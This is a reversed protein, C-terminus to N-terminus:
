IVGAQRLSAIQEDDYALIEKLIQGTDAGLAPGPQNHEVSDPITIATRVQRVTGFEPHEVATIMHRALVQEDALAEEVTNVPACPVKGRLRDLWESTTRTLFRTKLDALLSDRHEYRTAFSAYRPDAALEPAELVETLALWFKEKAAFIVLYGDQTQFAQAPTLTPHASDPLRRPQYDSNLTWIAVYNLLSIATDLLSVDVDCGQGTLRAHLLGALLGTMAIAGGAYDVVSLGSKTPPGDPDGTLSMWGAYAQMLYDYAPEAHRPGTLGFGSLSCCVIRPNVARLQEYTLGLKHPQDGRLNNFVADAHQVLEQFLQQGRPQKLDLTLSRKNRNFSQFYLSDGPITHPPVYRSVDGGAKPNEIKIVEAGLDALHLTGFPGAGFQEVALVRIGQLLDRSV